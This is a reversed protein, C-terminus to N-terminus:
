GAPPAPTGARETGAAVVISEPSAGPQVAQRMAREILERRETLQEPTTACALAVKLRGAEPFPMALCAAGPQFEGWDLSPEGARIRQILALVESRSTITKDTVAPLPDPPLMAELEDEDLQAALARGAATCWIPFSPVARVRLFLGRGQAAAIVFGSNGALQYAQASAGTVGALAHVLGEVRRVIQSEIGRNGLIVGRPGLSVKGDIRVIWGEPELASLIRSVVSKDLGARRALESLVLPESDDLLELLGLGRLLAQSM